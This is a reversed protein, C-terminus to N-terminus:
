EVSKISFDIVQQEARKIHNIIRNIKYSKNLFTNVTPDFKQKITLEVELVDGKSFSAGNDIREQFVPDDSKVSIKNGKYIFDWKLKKDFSPRVIHLRAASTQIREDEEIEESKVSLYEFDEKKVEVLSNGSSDTIEYGTISSDNELSEFSQSLADKIITNKEYISYTFNEIYFVDGNENEIRVKENEAKISKEKKGKLFKRLEILGVLSAIIAGATHINDRTLLNRLSDLTTEVLDIHILFSEKDLAKIKIDIKKGTNLERNLEQIISTTHILNNILINVDIQHQQGDFRIKFDTNMSFLKTSKLRM